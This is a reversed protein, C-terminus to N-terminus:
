VSFLQQKWAFSEMSQGLPKYEACVYGQYNSEAITQFIQAFDLEGTLPQHRQPSDAFQIHGICPLYHRLASCVDEGIKAVHYCDFQLRVQPLEALVQQAQQLNQVLFNPMDIGNIMEFVVQIGYPEAQTHTYALNELFTQWALTDNPEARGSLVNIQPVNLANAYDLALQVAQQYDTKRESVCALGRGGQMLDGAPVNILCLKLQHEHLQQQLQEISLEYPFQIEVTDFGAQRALAFRELLPVETFIMSLNVGLNLQM